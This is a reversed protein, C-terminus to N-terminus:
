AKAGARIRRVLLLSALLLWGSLVAASLAVSRDMPDVFPLAILDSGIIASAVHEITFRFSAVEFRTEKTIGVLMLGAVITSIALIFWFVVAYRTTRVAASVGLVMLAYCAAMFIAAASALLAVPWCAHFFGPLFIFAVLFVFLMPYLLVLLLRTFVHFWKGLVYTLPSIPRSFYLEFAHRRTDEAIAGGGSLAALFTLAFAQIQLFIMAYHAGFERYEQEPLTALREVDLNGAQAVVMRVEMRTHTAEEATYITFTWILAPFWSAIVFFWFLRTKRVYKSAYRAIALFAPTSGRVGRDDMRAYVRDHIPM